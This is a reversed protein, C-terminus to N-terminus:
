GDLRDNSFSHGLHKQSAKLLPILLDAIMIIGTILAWQVDFIGGVAAIVLGLVAVLYGGQELSINGKM